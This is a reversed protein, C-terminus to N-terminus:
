YHNRLWVEVKLNFFLSYHNRLWVKVKLDFFLSLSLLSGM